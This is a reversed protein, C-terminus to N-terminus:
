KSWVAKANTGNPPHTDLTEANLLVIIIIISTLLGQIFVEFYFAGSLGLVTSLFSYLFLLFSSVVLCFIFPLHFRDSLTEIKERKRKRLGIVFSRITYTFVHCVFVLYFIVDILSDQAPQPQRSATIMIVFIGAAPVFHLADARKWSSIRQLRYKCYLFLVPGILFSAAGVLSELLFSTSDLYLKLPEISSITLMLTYGGLMKAPITMRAFFLLHFSVSIGVLGILIIVLIFIETRM